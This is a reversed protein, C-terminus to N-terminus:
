YWAFSGFFCVCLTRDFTWAPTSGRGSSHDGDSAVKALCHGEHTSVAIPVSTQGVLEKFEAIHGPLLPEEIFFPQHPELLKVLQKAMGRHLRGHFDSRTVTTLDGPFGLYAVSMAVDLGSEKIAKFRSLNENLL